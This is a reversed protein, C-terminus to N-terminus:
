GLERHVLYVPLELLPYRVVYTGVKLTQCMDETPTSSSLCFARNDWRSCKRSMLFSCFKIKWDRGSTLCKWRDRCISSLIFRVKYLHLGKKGWIRQILTCYLSSKICPFAIHLQWGVTSCAKPVIFAFNTCHYFKWAWLQNISSIWIERWKSCSKNWGM